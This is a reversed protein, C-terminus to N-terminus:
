DFIEGNKAACFLIQQAMGAAEGWRNTGWESLDVPSMNKLNPMLYILGRQVWIDVPFASLRGFGFLMVCEAIKRGVGPFQTLLTLLESDTKILWSALSIQEEILKKCTLYIFKSRYGLGINRLREEGICVIDKASPLSNDNSGMILTGTEDRLNNLNLMIRPINSVTSAMFSILCEYPDQKMITLGQYAPILNHLLNDKKLRTMLQRRDFSLGFIAKLQEKDLAEGMVEVDITNDNRQYAKIVTRRIIIRFTNEATEIWHFLQGSRVTLGLDIPIDSILNLNYTFL